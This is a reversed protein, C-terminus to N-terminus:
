RLDSPAVGSLELHRRARELVEDVTLLDTEPIRRVDWGHGAMLRLALERERDLVGAALDLHTANSTQENRILNTLYWELWGAPERRTANRLAAHIDGDLYLLTFPVSGIAETCEALFGDIAIEGNDWDSLSRVFPFLSDCVVLDAGSEASEQAFSTVCEALTSITCSGTVALERAMPAFVPRTLVEDEEVLDVQLDCSTFWDRLGRALTSTGVAPAVGTVAVIRAM